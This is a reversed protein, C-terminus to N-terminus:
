GPARQQSWPRVSGVLVWWGPSGELELSPLIKTQAWSLNKSKTRGMLSLFPRVLFPASGVRSAVMEMRGLCQHRNLKLTWLVPWLHCYFETYGGREHGKGGGAEPAAPWASHHTTQAQPPPQTSFPTGSRLSTATCVSHLLLAQRNMSTPEAGLTSRQKARGTPPKNVRTATQGETGQPTTASTTSHFSASDTATPPCPLASQPSIFHSDKGPSIWAGKSFLPTNSNLFIVTTLVTM